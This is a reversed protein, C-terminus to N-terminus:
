SRAYAQSLVELLTPMQDENAQSMGRALALLSDCRTALLSDHDTWTPLVQHNFHVYNFRLYMLDALFSFWALGIRRACQPLFQKLVYWLREVCVTGTQLPEGAAHYALGLSRWNWLGQERLPKRLRDYHAALKQTM